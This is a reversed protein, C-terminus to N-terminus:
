SRSNNEETVPKEQLVQHSDIQDDLPLHLNLKKYQELMLEM